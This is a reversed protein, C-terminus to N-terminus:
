STVNEYVDSKAGPGATGGPSDTQTNYVAHHFTCRSAFFGIKKQTCKKVSSLFQHIKECVNVFIYAVIGYIKIKAHMLFKATVTVTSM